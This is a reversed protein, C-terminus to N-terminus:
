LATELSRLARGLGSPRAHWLRQRPRSSASLVLTAHSQRTKTGLLTDALSEGDLAATDAPAVQALDLISPVLDIAAFFSGRNWQGAVKPLMKGPGWVILPSRVGGEYLCGKGGRFESASGAGPEPGNDSCLLIVTNEHLQPSSRVHDFLKGLQRDMEELVALYLTRKQGDGWAALPPAFPSHVDDPWVNVYFPRNGTAAQDIFEIAADVYATTVTSRDRWTIEGRGLRDSGLAHKAPQSQNPRVLLPLVRDGLGEFNTLSREFGYEAILPADGVDRQGGMHWKGFHGTAYGAANLMRPLTPVTPDLWNAIGRRKNLAAITSIPVSAFGNRIAARRSRPGRPLAFRHM